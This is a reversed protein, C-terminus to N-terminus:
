LLRSIRTSYSRASRMRSAASSSRSTSSGTPPAACSAGNQPLARGTTPRSGTVILTEFYPRRAAAPGLTPPLLDPIEGNGDDQASWDGAHQRFSRTMLAQAIRTALALSGAADGAAAADKLAAMLQPGPYGHFEETVALASLAADYKARDGGRSWAKAADVLDRWNDARGGPGSFFQDIRQQAPKANTM